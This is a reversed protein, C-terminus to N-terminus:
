TTDMSDEVPDITEKDSEHQVPTHAVSAEATVPNSLGPTVIPTDDTVMIEDNETSVVPEDTIMEDNNVGEVSNLTAAAAPQSTSMPSTATFPTNVGSVLQSAAGGTNDKETGVNNKGETSAMEEVDDSGDEDLAERREQEEKDEQIQAQMGTLANVIEGFQQRRATWVKGYDDKEQELDAIEQQLRAISDQQTQRPKLHPTSLIESAITDYTLKNRKTEQALSLSTHLSAMDAKAKFSAAVSLLLCMM